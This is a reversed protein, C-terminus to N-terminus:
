NVIKLWTGQITIATHKTSKWWLTQATQFNASTIQSSTLDYFRVVEYKAKEEDGLRNKMEWWIGKGYMQKSLHGGVKEKDRRELHLIPMRKDNFM